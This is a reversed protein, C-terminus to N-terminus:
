RGAEATLMPLKGAVVLEMEATDREEFNPFLVLEGNIRAIRVAAVPGAWPIDSLMLATSASNIALVDSDNQLDTSLVLTHVMTEFRWSKPFLPRIPRDIQRATLIAKDSPRSERKIFGGPIKGAAYM